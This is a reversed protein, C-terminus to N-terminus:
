DDISPAGSAANITLCQIPHTGADVYAVAFRVTSVVLVADKLAYEGSDVTRINVDRAIRVHIKSMDGFYVVVNGATVEDELWDNLIVPKGLLLMRPAENMGGSMAQFLPRGTTDTLGVISLYVATSMVWAANPSERYKQDVAGWLALLDDYTVADNFHSTVGDTVQNAWGNVHGPDGDGVTIEQSLFRAQREGATSGLITAIDETSDEQLETSFLLATAAKYYDFNVRDFATDLITAATLETNYAASNATDNQIIEFQPTGNPVRKVTCFRQFDWHTAFAREFGSAMRDNVTYKGDANTTINQGDSSRQILESNNLLSFNLSENRYSVGCREAAEGYEDCYGDSKRLLYAKLAKNSDEVTLEKKRAVAPAYAKPMQEKKAAEGLRELVAIRKALQDDKIKCEDFRKIEEETADEGAEWKAALNKMEAVVDSKEERVLSLESHNM